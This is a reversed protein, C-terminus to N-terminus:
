IMCYYHAILESFKCSDDDIITVRGVASPYFFANGNGGPNPILDIEFYETPELIDDNIIMFEFTPDANTPNPLYRPDVAGRLWRIRFNSLSQYDQGAINTRLNTEYDIYLNFQSTISVAQKDQYTEPPPVSLLYLHSIVGLETSPYRCQALVKLFPLM